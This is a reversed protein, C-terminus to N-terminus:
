NDPNQMLQWSDGDWYLFDNTGDANTITIANADLDKRYQILYDEETESVIPTGGGVLTNKYKNYDQANIGGDLVTAEEVIYPGGSDNEVTLVHIDSSGYNSTANTIQLVIMDKDSYRLRATAATIYDKRSGTRNPIFFTATRGDDLMIYIINQFQADESAAGVILDDAAGNGDLDALSYEKCIDIEGYENSLSSDNYATGKDSVSEQNRGIIHFSCGCLTLIAMLFLWPMIIRKSM